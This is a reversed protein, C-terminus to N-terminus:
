GGARLIQSPKLLCAKIAPIIGALLSLAGTISLVFFLAEFSLEHSAMQGYVSANFMEHGQMRSLFYILTGLHNLTLTAALIGILSGAIGVAGGAIGFILAISFSSAGMSRLIGIEMKKDNVLIILMSIINSCAVIVIVISILMFINKQSVLENMIEKTFEYEKYTQVDFYRSIGKQKFAQLLQEKVSDAQERREFRVNIGNTLTSRDNTQHSARILSTVEPNALIFKGGIPIIGPDYFGAVYVPIYHEQVLSATPAFYSLNGRDGLLVGAEKFSKPLLIGDGINPDNPLSFKKGGEESYIWFPSAPSNEPYDTQFAAQAIKLDRLPVAGQLRTGQVPLSVDLYLDEVRKAQAISGAKLNADFPESGLLLLPITKQVTQQEFLLEDGNIDLQGRTLILGQEELQKQMESCAQGNAPIFLRLLRGNKMLGCAKWHAVSPLLSRPLPWGGARPEVKQLRVHFFFRELRDQFVNKPFPIKEEAEEEKTSEAIGILQLYNNLDRAHIPLLTEKMRVNDSEFNGLYTPYALFSQTTGNNLHLSPLDRILRLKIHAATLEFDQAKLGQVGKVEEVAQYALKVLDKVEGTENVDPAAWFAPVEEDYDPNYPDTLSAEKKEHLTKTNYGSQESLTDILYYYSHYYAETPTIRVPATLSTLKGVWNKELGETVSFFVVILWVVLTIVLISILSIISVSLQRRRPILYKCAVSLEFM